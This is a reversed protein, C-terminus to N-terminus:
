DLNAAREIFIPLWIEPDDGVEKIIEDLLMITEVRGSLINIIDDMGRLDIKAVVSDNGQKVLFFRSGPDTTKVIEFERESLMFVKKYPETARLNPLFIQTATQQVLTDSISSSTADEVSQTAFVVMANLKRMVKLWDKIKPAFVPNDILAWAEDLIVMTPSGDLSLNIKHFLYILVAPLSAKDRIVDAMEFGFSRANDFNLLDEENDFLLAHSGRGHWMELRGALSGPGALGLFPAINRLRREKKDLKYNGDIAENLRAVDESNLKDDNTSVLAKLWELLFARNESTDDLQLPNFASKKGASILTHVGGISRIFLEAGRDKDFFFIRPNYKQAQACLFNMLVTKGAGTPGIIMTHGVDRSHFNFFYPTGSTTGLVTVADGWHNGKRKGSPYNHFSAFGSLNLTNVTATRVLFDHNAPLQGWYAPEMNMRERIANIGVNSFEVVALSLANELARVNNEICLVSIHHKGFAIEGSMSIDLAESIESIQSKAIDESQILRNQQLQMSAIAASRDIFSFSQTIIFEFPLKLFGDLMGVHTMPRYEKLSIVGAFKNGLAGKVEISKPGFYLRQSPLYKSIDMTPVLMPQKVGCNALMGLFELIQSYAGAKTNVVGLLEAGYNSYTNLVRDVIESLESYMDRMERIWADKDTQRQIAKAANEFFAATSTDNKRIVTIYHENIFTDKGSNRAKWEENLYHSFLNPMKSDVFAEQRRRVTHFWMAFKGSGMGKFLSNRLSKKIELEEDDATEFSYGSIKIVSMLENTKTLITTSNYHTQYPIFESASFEKEAFKHNKSYTKRFKFYNFM